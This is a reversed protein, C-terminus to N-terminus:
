AAHRTGKGDAHERHLSFSSLEGAAAFSGNNAAAEIVRYLQDILDFQETHTLARRYNLSVRFDITDM